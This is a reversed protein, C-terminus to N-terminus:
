PKTAISPKDRHGNRLRVEAFPEWEYMQHDRNLVILEVSEIRATAPKTVVRSLADVVPQVLGDANSYAITVHPVFGDEPEPVDSRVDGIAGRLARRVDAPPRAPSAEWRIAEPTIGPHHLTLDFAPHGDLRRAAADVVARADKEPVEDTFGLGQTTLHLWQDPVPDLGPLNRLGRRYDAALRHVDTADRFTFHWTYFRRGVRWGPRWWWHDAMRDDSM